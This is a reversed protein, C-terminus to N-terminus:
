PLDWGQQADARVGPAQRESPDWRRRSWPRPRGAALTAPPIALVPCRAHALCFRTVHGHRLRALRGRQGTGVVLLDDAGDAVWVLVQGTEGRVVMPQFEVGAPASGWATELAAELRDAAADAWAKRLYPSPYRREALDGPPPVWAHV